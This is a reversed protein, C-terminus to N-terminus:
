AEEVEHTCREGHDDDKESFHRIYDAARSAHSAATFIARDDNKLLSIWTKIYGSHRLEGQIDLHVCLFAASLEAVLEEAAYADDGFRKGFTRNLRSEHGSWHSLEHLLTAWYSGEQFFAAREPIRIFDKSPVYFAKDGGHEIRASTADVFAQLKEDTQPLVRVPEQAPIGDIQDLNFVHAQKLFRFSHEDEEGRNVTQQGAYVITTAREGKRVQYGLEHAQIYTMWENRTHLHDRWAMYLLLVNIGSYPRHTSYNRPNLGAGGSKWPQAWTPSGQELDRIISATVSAYLEELKM